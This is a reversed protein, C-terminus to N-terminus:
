LPHLFKLLLLFGIVEPIGGQLAVPEGEVAGQFADAGAGVELIQLTFGSLFTKPQCFTLVPQFWIDVPLFHHRGMRFHIGSGQGLM